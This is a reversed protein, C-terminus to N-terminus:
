KRFSEYGMEILEAIQTANIKQSFDKELILCAKEIKTEESVIDSSWEPKKNKKDKCLVLLLELSKALAIGTDEHNNLYEMFNNLKRMICINLGPESFTLTKDIFRFKLLLEYLAEPLRMAFELWESKQYRYISHPANPVRLALTGPFLKHERGLFDIYRGEGKLLYLIVFDEFLIKEAKRRLSKGSIFSGSFIGSSEIERFVRCPKIKKLEIFLKKEM